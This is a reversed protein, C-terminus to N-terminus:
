YQKRAADQQEITLRDNDVPSFILLTPTKDGAQIRAWAKDAKALRKSDKRPKDDTKSNWNTLGSIAQGKYDGGWFMLLKGDVIKYHEPNVPTLNGSGSLMLSCWGGHAPLYRDPSQTFLDVQEADTFYYTVGKHDVQFEPSGKEAMDKQFYSVVSYGDLAIGQDNQQILSMESANVVQVGQTTLLCCIAILIVKNFRM